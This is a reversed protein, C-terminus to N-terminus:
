ARGASEVEKIEAVKKIISDLHRIDRIALVLNVRGRGDASTDVRAQIINGGQKAIVATVKALVGPANQSVIVVGGRYVGKIAEDWDVEVMRQSDLLEKAVYHCRQAHVTIGKGSTIYGIIPEGKIPSCCKALNVPSDERDKVLIGAAHRGTVRTVVKKLLPEKRQILTTDPFIKEMLRLDLIIRGCGILFYLDELRRIRFPVAAHIRKVLLEEKLMKAPIRFKAAEQSWMTKGLSIHRAREQQNLWRRLHHRATSTFAINLSERGHFADPSTLIEIINGPKLVTKLPALKGDIRAKYSHLGIESHIKFAFDLATAGMPLTVIKGKPTFVYVEEPILNTKLSSLFERPSKREQYLEAMERLWELRRDDKDMSDPRSEKYRWHAAIGNEAIEHMKNTRIQIEITQKKGAIITTHLAQYHNPKPMAIFDRFRYPLHPWRQHIIGLAAYCNKVSNTLLRLAMFDYVQDFAIEQRRMKNFISYARKIRFVIEAKIHNERMLEDLEEQIDELSREADKRLPEVLKQIKFFHEPDVYRFALDELEAKIRGMGLRNAIPAYIELTERAVQIRKSEALYKLTKLNHIRDALKIFIVRLDDTMALIIKRITEAHRSEPSSVQVLSIKTVGEVLHATDKGFEQQLDTATVDTDELVDHLLAATLTVADMQMDALMSAVELPHSLYPEGSRRVQGKHARAAFVYAKQLQTIDRETYYPAVKDLIDNFRIM